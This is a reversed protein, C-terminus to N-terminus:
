AMPRTAVRDIWAVVGPHAGADTRLHEALVHHFPDTDDAELELTAYRVFPWAVVDAVGFDGFLHDRGALLAEFVDLSGRLEATWAPAKPADPRDALANPPVKWVRNFWDVFVTVEARRAPDPPYLPPDPHTAELHELIVTSDPLVLDGDVLVPVLPQGSIAEVPGRARPDVWVSEVEIGKHALALAVRDVNTSFPFRYLRLM